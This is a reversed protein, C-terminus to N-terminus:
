TKTSLVREDLLGVLEDVDVPKVLHCDFGARVARVRDNPQGYGTVAILTATKGHEARLVQAVQYGDLDPLGVDLVGVHPSFSRWSEIAGSGDAAIATQFGEVQLAESLLEALDQNDDVVLVRVGGRAQAPLRRVVPLPTKARTTTPLEVAFAAGLGRGASQASISGGHRRVLSRVIALGLGLGGRLVDRARDAQVFPEFIRDLQDPAIGAGNDRVTVRVRDPAPEVLVEIRGGPPTFKAANTLLNGFVQALRVPDGQVAVDGASGVFLDHRHRAVLPTAIEVARQLVSALVVPESRLEVQGRAVRSIDLLDDVLRVLHNTHREIVDRERAAVQHHKLLDAATVIAALPNRLEHGLMALFDDKRRAIELVNATELVTGVVNAATRALVRDTEPDLPSARGAVLRGREGGVPIEAEICSLKGGSLFVQSDASDADIRTVARIEALEAASMPAGRFAGREQGPAGSLALYVLDCSLATPLADVLVDLAEAPTRGVCMSPLANLAALDRVCRRLRDGGDGSRSSPPEGM